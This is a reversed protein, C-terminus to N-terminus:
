SVAMATEVAGEAMRIAKEHLVWSDIAKRCGERAMNTNLQREAEDFTEEADMRVRYAEEDAEKLRKALHRVQSDIAQLQKGNGKGHHRGATSGTEARLEKYAAKLEDSWRAKVKKDLQDLAANAQDATERVTGKEWLWKLVSWEMAETMLAKADEVEPLRRM